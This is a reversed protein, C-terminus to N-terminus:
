PMPMPHECTVEVRHLDYSVDVLRVDESPLTLVTAPPPPVQMGCGYGCSGPKKVVETHAIPRVRLIVLRGDRDTGAVYEQSLSCGCGDSSICTQVVLALHAPTAATAPVDVIQESGQLGANPARVRVVPQPAGEEPPPGYAEVMRAPLTAPTLSLDRTARAVARDRNDQTRRASDRQMAEPNPSCAALCILAFWPRVLMGMM